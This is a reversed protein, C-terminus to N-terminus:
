GATAISGSAISRILRCAARFRGRRDLGKPPASERLPQSQACMSFADAFIENPSTSLDTDWPGDRHLLGLFASRAANTLIYYDLNHGLEHLFTRKSDWAPTGPNIWIAFAGPKTCAEADAFPCPAEVVRLVVDPTPVKAEDAWSQYPLSLAPCVRNADCSTITTHASAGSPWLLLALGALLAKKM